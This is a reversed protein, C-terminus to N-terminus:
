KLRIPGSKVRRSKCGGVDSSYQSLNKWHSSDSRCCTICLGFQNTNSIESMLARFSVSYSFNTSSSTLPLKINDPLVLDAINWIVKFLTFHDVNFTVLNPTVSRDIIYETDYIQWVPPEDIETQSFLIKLPLQSSAMHGYQKENLLPLTIVVPKRFKSGSPGLCITPSAKNKVQDKGYYFSEDMLEMSADIPSDVCEPPFVTQVLGSSSQFQLIGGCKATVRCNAKPISALIEQSVALNIGREQTQKISCSHM